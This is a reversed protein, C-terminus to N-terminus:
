RLRRIRPGHRRSVALTFLMELADPGDDHEAKPFYKLQDLLLRDARRFRILGNKIHPQLKSIRLTKDTHPRVGEVPLYLGRRASERIVQDKFLEQFQVEEIAVRSFEYARHYEFLAEMIADPHRRQIDAELIDLHGTERVAGIVIASPDTRRSGHGMSPDVAGYIGRYDGAALARRLDEEELYVFWDERFLCDAPNVPENQKESDFFAPGDAVRMKMLDLYSEVEPWLVATGALLTERNAEFFADARAEADPGPEAFLREWTSWLPSDSARLM